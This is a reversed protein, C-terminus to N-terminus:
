SVPAGCRRWVEAPADGAAGGAALRRVDVRYEGMLTMVVQGGAGPEGAPVTYRFGHRDYDGTFQRGSPVTIKPGDIAMQRGDAFCWHGDISDARAAPAALLVVAAALLYRRHPM